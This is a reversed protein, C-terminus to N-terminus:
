AHLLLYEQAAEDDWVVTCPKIEDPTRVGKSRLTLLFLVAADTVVDTLNASELNDDVLQALRSGAAKNMRILEDETLDAATQWSELLDMHDIEAILREGVLLPLNGRARIDAIESDVIDRDPLTITLSSNPM